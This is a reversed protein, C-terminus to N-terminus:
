MRIYWKVNACDRKSDSCDLKITYGDGDKEKSAKAVAKLKSELHVFYSRNILTKAMWKTQYMSFSCSCLHGFYVIDDTIMLHVLLAYYSSPLHIKILTDYLAGHIVCQVMHWVKILVSAGTTVCQVMYWVNIYSKISRSYTTPLNIPIHVNNGFM